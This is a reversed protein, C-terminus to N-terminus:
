CAPSSGTTPAPSAKAARSLVDPAAVVTYQSYDLRGFQPNIKINLSKAAQCTAKNLATQTANAEAQTTPTKGGNAKIQLEAGEAEYKGVNQMMQPAIGNSLLVISPNSVGAQSAYQQAETEIAAIGEQVQSSSVSVGASAAARDQVAFRVLWSLVAQPMQASTLQVEGAPYKSVADQLNSVNTDLTSQTIRQNGVIAAAGLQVPSCASLLVGAGLVAVGGFGAVRIKRGVSGASGTL